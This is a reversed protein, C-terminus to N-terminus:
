STPPTQNRVYQETLNMAAAVQKGYLSPVVMATNLVPSFVLDHEPYRVCWAMGRVYDPKDPHHWGHPMELRRVRQQARNREKTARDLRVGLYICAVALIAIAIYTVVM